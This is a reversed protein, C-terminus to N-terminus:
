QARMHVHTNRMTKIWDETSPRKAPKRRAAATFLAATFVPTRTDNQILIKKYMYIYIYVYKICVYVCVYVCVWSQFHQTM